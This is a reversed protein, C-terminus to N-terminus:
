FICDQSFCLKRSYNVGGGSRTDSLKIQSKCSTLWQGLLDEFTGYLWIAKYCSYLLSLRSLGSRKACIKHSFCIIINLSFKFERRCHNKDDCYKQCKQYTKSLGKRDVNNFRILIASSTSKLGRCSLYGRCWEARLTPTFFTASLPKQFNAHCLFSLKQRDYNRNRLSCLLFISYKSFMFM